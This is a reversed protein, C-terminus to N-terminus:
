RLFLGLLRVVGAVVEDKIASTSTRLWRNITGIAETKFKLIESKDGDERRGNLDAAAHALIGNFSAANSSDIPIWIDRFPSFAQSGLGSHILDAHM